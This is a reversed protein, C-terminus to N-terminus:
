GDAASMPADLFTRPGHRAATDLRLLPRASPEVLLAAEAVARHM